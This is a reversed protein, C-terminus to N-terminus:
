TGTKYREPYLSFDFTKISILLVLLVQIDGSSWRHM